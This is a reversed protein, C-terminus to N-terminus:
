TKENLANRWVSYYKEAIKDWSYNKFANQRAAHKILENRPLDFVTECLLSDLNEKTYCICGDGVFFSKDADILVPIGSSLAELIVLSCGEYESAVISTLATNYLKNLQRGPEITNLYRVQDNLGFEKALQIISSFYEENVIGGAFAYVLYKDKQMHPALMRLVREQGKNEYVSGVQLIVRKGALGFEEKAAAREEESLPHYIATNVGNAILYFNDKPINLNASANEITAQNLAFVIDARKMCEAEQFYRTKLIKESKEWPLAWIGSHNTYAIYAKERLKKSNLKLFFFLNYQNHFHLVIKRKAKKLLKKLEFALSVSYAVRKLKHMLGLHVDTKKFVSPVHVERIPLKSDARSDSAIDIIEVDKGMSLLSKTLEEVVIETAAGMCAPIPTYGTGIEYIKM